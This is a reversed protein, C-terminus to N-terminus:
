IIVEVNQTNVLTKMMGNMDVIMAFINKKIKKIM